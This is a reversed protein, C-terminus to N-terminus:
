NETSVFRQVTDRQDIRDKARKAAEKWLAVLKKWKGASLAGRIAEEYKVNRDRSFTGSFLGLFREQLSQAPGRAEVPKWGGLLDSSETQQSLNLSVLPRNLVDALYTVATTKGTGTEGTLLAPENAEICGAITALLTLSPRHLAFPRSTVPKSSWALAPSAALSIREITVHTIHGDQTKSVQLNPTKNELLWRLRDQDIKLSEAFIAARAEILSAANSPNLSGFFIDRAELFVDERVVPNQIADSLAVSSTLEVEVDMVESAPTSITLEIRKCWKMLDRVSCPRAVLTEQSSELGQLQKWAALIGRVAVMGLNQFKKSLILELDEDSPEPITIQMWKHHGLFTARPLAGDPLPHVSRTAFLTFGEKARVTERGFVNIAAHAGIPKTKSLSEVLPWLTGLVESSAKDINELVLVKGEKMARILVGDKWEFTGPNTVSSVFSGLLSRADLSIDALHINVLNTPKSPFLVSSFYTILASKGSSPPGSLLVPQRLSLLKSIDQLSQLISATPVFPTAVSTASSDKLM